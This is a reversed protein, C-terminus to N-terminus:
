QAQHGSDIKNYPVLAFVYRSANYLVILNVITTIKQGLFGDVKDPLGPMRDRHNLSLSSRNQAM